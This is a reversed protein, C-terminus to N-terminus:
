GLQMMRVACAEVASARSPLFWDPGCPERELDGPHYQLMNMFVQGILAFIDQMSSSYAVAWFSVLCSAPVTANQDIQINLDTAHRLIVLWMAGQDNVDEDLVIRNNRRFPAQEQCM